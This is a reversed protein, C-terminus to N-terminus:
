AAPSLERLNEEAASTTEESIECGCEPCVVAAPQANAPGSTIHGMRTGRNLPQLTAGCCACRDGPSVRALFAALSEPRGQTCNMM